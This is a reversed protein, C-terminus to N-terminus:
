EKNSAYNADIVASPAIALDSEDNSVSFNPENSGQHRPGLGNLISRFQANTYSFVPM